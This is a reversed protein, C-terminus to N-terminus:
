SFTPNAPICSVYPSTTHAKARFRASSAMSIHHMQHDGHDRTTAERLTNSRLSIQEACPILVLEIAYNINQEGLIELSKHVIHSHETLPKSRTAGICHDSVGALVRTMDLVKIGALPLKEVAQKDVTQTTSISRRWAQTSRIPSRLTTCPATRAAVKIANM